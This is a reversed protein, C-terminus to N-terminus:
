SILHHEVAFRSLNARNNTETKRLLNSVYKEITRPSLHLRVGIDINSLGHALLELVQQERETLNDLNFRTMSNAEAHGTATAEAAGGEDPRAFRVENQIIQSRELLNRVVALLEDMEFPKPLYADCGVRYGQIRDQTENCETLFIVPILRYEPRQRVKKIFEYGNLRPMRIDAVILHPHYTNVNELAQQGDSASIASYGGFELSDCIAQRIGPNDDAVLIFLPM